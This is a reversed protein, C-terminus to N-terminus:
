KLLANYTNIIGADYQGNKFYPMLNEDQIRGTKGDPLVGELGYGVEIRSKREKQAILLLVGNNKEKDGIGWQRFLELSYDELVADEGITPVTVVVIQASTKQQLNKSTNIIANESEESLMDAQDLCYFNRDPQPLDMAAIASATSLLLTMAAALIFFAKRM